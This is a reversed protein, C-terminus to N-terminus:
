HRGKKWANYARDPWLSVFWAIIADIDEDRLKGDFAPMNGGIQGTGARITRKLIPEPHHWAHGSGNLPPPPFKGDPGRQHWNVAGQAQDGHCEACHAQYLQGGRSVQAPDYGRAQATAVLKTGPEPKVPAPPAAEQTPMTKEAVKQAAEHVEDTCGALLTLLATLAILIRQM